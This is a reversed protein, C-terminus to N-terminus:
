IFIHRRFLLATRGIPKKRNIATHSVKYLLFCGNSPLPFLPNGIFSVISSVILVNLFKSFVSVTIKVAMISAKLTPTTAASPVSGKSGESPPASQSPSPSVLASSCCCPVLKLLGSVSLSPKGSPQSTACPSLGVSPPSALPSGSPSPKVLECSYAIPVFGLEASVSPSPRGSPESGNGLSGFSPSYESESPSPM